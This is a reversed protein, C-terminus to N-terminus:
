SSFRKEIEERRHKNCLPIHWKGKGIDEDLNTDCLLCLRRSTRDIIEDLKMWFVSDDKNFSESKDSSSNSSLVDIIYNMKQALHDYAEEITEMDNVEPCRLEEIIDNVAVWKRELYPTSFFEEDYQGVQLERTTKIEM